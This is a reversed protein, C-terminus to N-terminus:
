FSSCCQGWWLVCCLFRFLHAVSVGGYFVVCFDLFILLVPGWWLVCCLFRFLHAVSVGGYFVVYFDLFILLM